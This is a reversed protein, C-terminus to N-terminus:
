GKLKNLKDTDISDFKENIRFVMVGMIMVASLLDVFIGIDMLFPMGHTAMLATIFLGNEIVLFGIIQGIAKKRSIMFFLGIWIVSISNVFQTSFIEDNYGDSTAFAFYSLVVLGCCVLILIPINLIFDKEVVYRVKAYYRNLLRPIVGVKLLIILLSVLLVDVRGEEKLIAVGFVGAVLGILLSQVQFTKIYSSIRKNAVLVFASLLILVSLTELFDSM